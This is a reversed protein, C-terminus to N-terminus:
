ISNWVYFKRYESGRLRNSINAGNKRMRNIFKKSESWKRIFCNSGISSLNPFFSWVLAHAPIFTSPIKFQFVAFSVDVFREYQTIRIGYRPRFFCHKKTPFFGRWNWIRGGTWGQCCSSCLILFVCEHNQVLVFGGQWFCLNDNKMNHVDLCCRRYFLIIYM